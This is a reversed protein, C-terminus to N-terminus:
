NAPRLKRYAQTTMTTHKRFFRCFYAPDNFGLQYCIEKSTATSYILLRKAEQVLRDVVLSKPSQNAIQRCIQNLRRESLGLRECYEPLSLHHKYSHEIMDTFKRFIILSENSADSSPSPNSGLRAIQLVLAKCLHELMMQKASNQSVWELGITRFLQGITVWQQHDYSCQLAAAGLCIGDSLNLGGEQYLGEDQLQWILSQHITLVHGTTGEQTQFSHPVSPPTFFCSPGSVSYIRDDIHFRTEGSDMYHLQLHQVHRHVPMDRAFFGAFAELSDYHILADTYKSDYDRGMEINPIWDSEDCCDLQGSTM